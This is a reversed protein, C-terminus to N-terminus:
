ALAENVIGHVDCHKTTVLGVIENLSGLVGHLYFAQDANFGHAKIGDRLNMIFNRSRIHIAQRIMTYNHRLLCEDWLKYVVATKDAIDVLFGARESKAHAHDYLVVDCVDPSLHLDHVVKRIGIDKLRDFMAITEDSHYKTPRAIDGVAIEDLDHLIARALLEGMPIEETARTALSNLERCMFYCKLVVFGSHQLVSEPAVLKTQSYRALSAMSQATSFFKVIDM